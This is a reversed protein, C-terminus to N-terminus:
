QHCPFFILSTVVQVPSYVQLCSASDLSYHKDASDTINFIMMMMMMKYTQDTLVSRNAMLWNLM